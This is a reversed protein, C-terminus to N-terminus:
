GQNIFKPTGALPHGPPYTHGLDKMETASKVLARERMLWYIFVSIPQPNGDKDPAMAPAMQVNRLMWGELGKANLERTLDSPSAGTTAIFDYEYQTM